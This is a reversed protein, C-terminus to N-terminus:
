EFDVKVSEVMYREGKKTPGAPFQFKKICSPATTGLVGPLHPGRATFDPNFPGAGGRSRQRRVDAGGIDAKPPLASM